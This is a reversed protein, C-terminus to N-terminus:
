HEACRLHAPTDPCRFILIHLPFPLPPTFHLRSTRARPRDRTHHAYLVLSPRRFPRAHQLSADALSVALLLALQRADRPVRMRFQPYPFVVCLTWTMRQYKADYRSAATTSHHMGRRRTHCSACWDSCQATRVRCMCHLHVHVYPRLSRISKHVCETPRTYPSPATVATRLHPFISM